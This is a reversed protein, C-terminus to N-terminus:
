FPFVTFLIPSVIRLPFIALFWSTIADGWKVKYFYRILWWQGALESIWFITLFLFAYEAISLLIICAFGPIGVERGLPTAIVLSCSFAFFALVFGTCVAKLAIKYERQFGLYGSAKHLFFAALPINIFLLLPPSLFPAITHHLPVHKFHLPPFGSTKIWYSTRDGKEIVPKEVLNELTEPDPYIVYSGPVQIKLEVINISRRFERL